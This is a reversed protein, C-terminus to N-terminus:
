SLEERVRDFVADAKACGDDLLRTAETVLRDAVDRDRMSRANIYVNLSAAKLAGAALAAGAGADSVAMRSGISALEDLLDVVECTKEMIAIPPQCAERLAAEMVEAKRARQEDTEVPLKYAHSLPEFAEADADALSLLEARLWDAQNVASEIRPQVDAYRRKGLTLHSVMEGLAAALSAAVAAAGGGGPVPAASALRDLFGTLTEDTVM